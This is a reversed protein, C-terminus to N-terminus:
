LSCSTFVCIMQLCLNNAQILHFIFQEDLFRFFVDVLFSDIANSYLRGLLQHLHVFQLLVRDNFTISLENILRQDDDNSNTSTQFRFFLHTHEGSPIVYISTQEFSRALIYIM